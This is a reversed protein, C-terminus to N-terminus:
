IFRFSKAIEDYTKIITQIDPDEFNNSELQELYELEKKYCTEDCGNVGDEGFEALKKDTNPTIGKHILPLILEIVKNDKYFGAKYYYSSLSIAYDDAAIYSIGCSQLHDNYIARIKKKNEKALAFLHFNKNINNILVDSFLCNNSSSIQELLEFQKELIDTQRLIFCPGPCDEPSQLYSKRIESGQRIKLYFELPNSFSDFSFPSEIQFHQDTSTLTYTGKQLNKEISPKLTTTPSPGIFKTTKSIQSNKYFYFLATSIVLLLIIGLIAGLPIYGQEKM